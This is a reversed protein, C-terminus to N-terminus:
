VEPCNDLSDLYQMEAEWRELEVQERQLDLSIEHELTM